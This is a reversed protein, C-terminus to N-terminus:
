QDLHTHRTSILQGSADYNYETLLSPTRISIPSPFTPHWETITKRAIPTDAAEIKAIVLGRNNYSFRTKSGNKGIMTLLRGATDYEFTTNSLPCSPTPEGVVKTIYRRGNIPEFTYTTKKGLARTVVTKYDNVYQITTKDAGDHHESSSARLERDYTWTAYRTGTEDTIGTLLWNANPNEYHYGRTTSSSDPFTITLQSLRDDKNYAYNVRTGNMSASHLQGLPGERLVLTAGADNSVTIVHPRQAASDRAPGDPEHSLRTMRGGTDKLSTMRGAENFGYQSGAESSYLWGSGTSELRGRANALPSLDSRHFVQRGGDERTLTIYREGLLLHTSYNHRWLGDYSNYYRRLQLSRSGSAPIDTEEQIKNGTFLSIPNGVFSCARPSQDVTEDDVYGGIDDTLPAAIDCEPSPRPYLTNSCSGALRTIPLECIGKEPKYIKPATCGNGDRYVVFLDHESLHIWITDKVVEGKNNRVRCKARTRDPNMSSPILTSSSAGEAYYNCAEQPTDYHGYRHGYWSTSIYWYYDEALVWQGWGMLALVMLLRGPRRILSAMSELMQRADGLASLQRSPVGIGCSGTIVPLRTQKM